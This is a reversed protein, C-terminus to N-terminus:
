RDKIDGYDINRKQPIPKIAEAQNYKPSNVRPTVDYAVLEAAPYPRLLEPWGQPDSALWQDRGAKALIVPMRDHIPALLENPETTIITCSTVAAGQPSHWIDYLGAFAFLRDSQLRIYVPFKRGAQTRWEYFGNAPILCRRTKFLRAFSPKVALTEARANIMRAISGPPEKSWSPVLGWRMKMLKRKGDDLVAPVDQGPAINFSPEFTGQVEEFGFEDQIEDLTCHLVFRGCM